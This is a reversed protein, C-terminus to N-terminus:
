SLRHSRIYYNISHTPGHTLLLWGNHSHKITNPLVLDNNNYTFKVVSCYTGTIYIEHIRFNTLLLLRHSTIFLQMLANRHKHSTTDTVQRFIYNALLHIKVTQCQYITIDHRPCAARSCQLMQLIRLKTVTSQSSYGM